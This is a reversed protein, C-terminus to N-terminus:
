VNKKGKKNIVIKRIVVILSGIMFCFILIAGFTVIWAKIGKSSKYITTSLTNFNGNVLSTIIFDDFSLATIIVAATIISPMLYSIIIKFFTKTNSIGLDNSANILNIKMNIMKPYIAVIAYPICFSIHSIVVTWYGFQIGLPLWVMTFLLGLSIGTIIDPIAINVNCMNKSINKVAHKSRWMGFCTIIAVFLSIPVVVIVVLISNFLSNLFENNHFLDIYNKVTFGNINLLINGKESSGNFSLLIVFVLPAYIFFIIIYIYFRRFFSLINYKNFVKQFFM